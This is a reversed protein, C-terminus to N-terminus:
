HILVPILEIKDQNNSARCTSSSCIESVINEAAWRNPPTSNQIDFIQQQKRGAFVTTSFILVFMWLQVSGFRHAESSVLWMNSKDVSQNSLFHKYNRLECSTLGTSTTVNIFVRFDRIFSFVLIFSYPTFFHRGAQKNVLYTLLRTLHFKENIVHFFFTYHFFIGFFSLSCARKNPVESYEIRICVYTLCKIFRM